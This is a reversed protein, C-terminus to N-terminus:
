KGKPCRSKFFNFFSAQEEEKTIVKPPAKKNRGKLKKKILKVTINKNPKWDITCGISKAVNPGDYYFPEKQDVKTKFEFTKTLVKNTFYPNAGFEFELTYGIPESENMRVRIDELFALVPEDYDMIFEGIQGCSQLVELWFNPIGKEGTQQKQQKQTKFSLNEVKSAVEEVSIESTEKEHENM